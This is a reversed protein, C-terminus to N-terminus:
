LFTNLVGSKLTFYCVVMNETKVLYTVTEHKSDSDWAKKDRLFNQLSCNRKNCFSKVIEKNRKNKKLQEIHFQKEISKM